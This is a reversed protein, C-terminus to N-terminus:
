PITAQAFSATHKVSNMELGLSTNMAIIPTVPAPLLVNMDLHQSLAGAMPCLKCAQLHM